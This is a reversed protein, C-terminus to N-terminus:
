AVLNPKGTNRFIRFFTSNKGWPEKQGVSRTHLLNFANFIGRFRPGTKTFSFQSLVAIKQNKGLFSWFLVPLKQLPIRELHALKLSDKLSRGKSPRDQSCGAGVKVSYIPNQWRYCNSFGKCGVLNQWHHSWIHSNFHYFWFENGHSKHNMINTTFPRGLQSQSAPRALHSSSTSMENIRGTVSSQVKWRTKVKIRRPSWLFDAFFLWRGPLMRFNTPQNFLSVQHHDYEDFNLYSRMLWFVPM